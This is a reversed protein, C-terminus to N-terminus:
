PCSSPPIGHWFGGGFGGVMATMDLVDVVVTYNSPDGPPGSLDCYLKSTWNLNMFGAVVAMMDMVSVTNAPPYAFADPGPPTPTSIVDGFLATPLSLAQSYYAENTPDCGEIIAQIEYRDWYVERPVIFCGTLGIAEQPWVAYEPASGDPLTFTYTLLAPDNNNHVVQQTGSDIWRTAGSVVHRVRLAVSQGANNPHFYLYRNYSFYCIDDICQSTSPCDADSTCTASGTLRLTTARWDEAATPPSSWLCPVPTVEAVRFGVNDLESAPALIGGRTAARLTGDDTLFSGGRLGRYSGYLVGHLVAENWEWVNGGQAFTGYPSDSPKTDYAGVETSYHTPDVFGGSYYNASGNAMDTGPPIEATPATDSQTPYDYYNGSMGDRYHYAAKYWEDESPIVWTADEERLVAMLAADSTAGNLYYSGDETTTLGQAGRPQGNRLWNALRAADGWSVFNVPRDAWEAGVSYSYDPSSGTREIKCGREHTWMSTNYLGYTDDDAVANLFETYQGATVEFRGIRYLYDVAGCIRDPGSGGYTEGSWEGANGPDGVGVTEIDVAQVGAASGLVIAGAIGLAAALRIVSNM